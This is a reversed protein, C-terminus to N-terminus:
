FVYRDPSGGTQVASLITDKGGVQDPGPVLGGSWGEVQLSARGRQCPKSHFRKPTCVCSPFYTFVRGLDCIIVPCGGM